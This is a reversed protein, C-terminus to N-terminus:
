KDYNDIDAKLVLDYLWDEQVLPGGYVIDSVHPAYRPKFLSVEMYWQPGAADFIGDVGLVGTVIAEPLASPLQRVVEGAESEAREYSDIVGGLQKYLEGVESCLWELSHETQALFESVGECSQSSLASIQSQLKKLQESMNLEIPAYAMAADRLADTDVKFRHM